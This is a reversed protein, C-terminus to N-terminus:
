SKEAGFATRVLDAVDMDDIGGGTGDAPAQTEGDAAALGLVTALLGAQRFRAMPIAALAARFEREEAEAETPERTQPFLLERLHRATREPTNHDFVLTAPLRLGTARGLRTRLEIATLSDFGMQLFGRSGQVAEPSALGLVTAAKQRVLELFARDREEAPLAAVQDAFHGGSEQGAAGSRRTVRVLARLVAPVLEPEGESLLPAPDLRMPVLVADPAGLAVDLLELGERTPLQGVGSRVMRRLGTDSLGGTLGSRQEWMGWALSTGPLGDARRRHALADLFTNAAAYGSQGASGLVGAASSFLVFASLGADRTLRHLHLAGEVKPRLVEDIRDPTLSTLVGDDLVGAAHFVATLPRDAPIRALLGALDERDAVDCAAVVVRAGRAALDATLEAAGAAATGSRSTLLLETVGHATVLHRAVLAGLGGTGGTILVTGGPAFRPGTAPPAVEATVRALRPARVVGRRVTLQPEGCSLAAPLV